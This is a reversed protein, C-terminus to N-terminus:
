VAGMHRAWEAGMTHEVYALSGRTGKKVETRSPIRNRWYDFAPVKGLACRGSNIADMMARGYSGQLSWMGSNIARQISEFYELESVESEGEIAYVDELGFQSVSPNAM